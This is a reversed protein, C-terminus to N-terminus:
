LVMIFHYPNRTSQYEAIDKQLCGRGCKGFSKWMTIHKDTVVKFCAKRCLGTVVNGYGQMRDPLKHWCVMYSGEDRVNGILVQKCTMDEDIVAERPSSPLLEDGFQPLFTNMSHPKIASHAASIKYAAMDSFYLWYLSYIHSMSSLFLSTM